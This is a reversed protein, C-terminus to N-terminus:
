HFLETRRSDWRRILLSKESEYIRYIADLYEECERTEIDRTKNIYSLMRSYYFPILSDLLAQRPAAEYRYAVAYDYLIRVWLESPYYFRDKTQSLIKEVQSRDPEPIVENWTERFSDLGEVFTRYLHDVDVSPVPPKEQVGLGYGFIRSPRTGIEQKWLYEFPVMLDFITAIVDQFMASLERAPDKV